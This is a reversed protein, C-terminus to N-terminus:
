PCAMIRSHNYTLLYFIQIAGFDANSPPDSPFTLRSIVNLSPHSQCEGIRLPLSNWIRPASFHYACELNLHNSIDRFLYSILLSHTYVSQQSINCPDVPRRTHLVKFTLTALKFQIAVRAFVLSISSYHLPFLMFIRSPQNVV